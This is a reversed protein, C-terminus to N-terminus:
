LDLVFNSLNTNEELLQNNILVNFRGACLTDITKDKYYIVIKRRVDVYKNKKRKKTKKLLNELETLISKDEISKDKVHSGFTLNFDQCSVDSGTDINLNVSHIVIKNISTEKTKNCAFASFVLIILTFLKNM